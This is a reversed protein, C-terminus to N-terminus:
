RQRINFVIYPLFLLCVLFLSWMKGAFVNYEFLLSQWSHGTLRGLSFEFVITFLVWLFGVFLARSADPIQLNPFILWIYIGCLITLTLTSLQQTQTTTFQKTLIFERIMANVFALAIMPLWYIVYNLNM